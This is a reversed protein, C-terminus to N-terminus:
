TEVNARRISRTSILGEQVGITKVVRFLHGTTVGFVELWELILRQACRTIVRM